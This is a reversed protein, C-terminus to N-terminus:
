RNKSRFLLFFTCVLLLLSGGIMMLISFNIPSKQQAETYAKTDLSIKPPDNTEESQQKVGGDFGFEPNTLVFAGIVFWVVVNFLFLFIIVMLMKNPKM